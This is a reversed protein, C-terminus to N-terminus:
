SFADMVAACTYGGTVVTIGPATEAPGFRAMYNVVWEQFRIRRELAACVRGDVFVSGLPSSGPSAVAPAGETTDASEAGAARKAMASAAADLRQERARRM